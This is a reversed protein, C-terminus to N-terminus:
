DMGNGRGAGLGLVKCPFLRVRHVDIRSTTQSRLLPVFRVLTCYILFVFFAPRKLQGKGCFSALLTQILLQLIQFKKQEEKTSLFYRSKILRSLSCLLNSCLFRTQPQVNNPSFLRISTPTNQPGRLASLWCFLFYFTLWFSLWRADSLAGICCRGFFPQGRVQLAPALDEAGTEQVCVSSVRDRLAALGFTGDDFDPPQVISVRPPEFGCSRRISLSSAGGFSGLAVLFFLM